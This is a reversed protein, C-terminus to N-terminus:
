TLPVRDLDVWGLIRRPPGHGVVSEGRVTRAVLSAEAAGTRECPLVDATTWVGAESKIFVCSHIREGRRRDGIVLVDGPLPEMGLDWATWCVLRHAGTVFRETGGRAWSGGRCVLRSDSCGAGALMWAPLEPAPDFDREGLRGGCLEEDFWPQGAKAPLRDIVSAVAVARRGSAHITAGVTYIACYLQLM